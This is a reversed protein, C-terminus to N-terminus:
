HNRPITRRYLEYLHRPSVQDSKDMTRKASSCATLKDGKLAREWLMAAKFNEWFLYHQSIEYFSCLNSAQLRRFTLKPTYTQATGASIVATMTLISTCYKTRDAEQQLYLM